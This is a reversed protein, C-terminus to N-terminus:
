KLNIGENKIKLINYNQFSQKNNSNKYYTIFNL